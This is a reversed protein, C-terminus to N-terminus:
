ELFALLKIVSKETKQRAMMAPWLILSWLRADYSILIRINQSMQDFVSPFRVNAAAESMINRNM